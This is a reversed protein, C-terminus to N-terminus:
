SHKKRTLKEEDQLMSNWTQMCECYKEGRVCNIPYCNCFDVIEIDDESYPLSENWYTLLLEYQKDIPMKDPFDAIFNFAQWLDTIGTVLQKMQRKNLREKPPFVIQDVGLWEEINKEPTPINEDPSFIYKYHETSPLFNKAEQLDELLQDIYKQM